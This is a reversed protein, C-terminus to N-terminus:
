ADASNGSYARESIVEMGLMVRIMNEAKLREAASKKALVQNVEDSLVSSGGIHLEDQPLLADPVKFWDRLRVDEATEARDLIAQQVRRDGNLSQRVSGGSTYGIMRAFADKSGGALEKVALELREYLWADIEPTRRM